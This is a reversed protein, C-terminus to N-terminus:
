VACVQTGRDGVSVNSCIWGLGNDPYNWVLGPPTNRGGTLSVKGLSDMSYPGYEVITEVGMPTVKEYTRVVQEDATALSVALCLAFLCLSAKKM